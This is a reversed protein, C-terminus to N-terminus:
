EAGAEPKAASKSTPTPAAKAPEKLKDGYHGAAIPAHVGEFTVTEGAQYVRGEHYTLKEVKKQYSM